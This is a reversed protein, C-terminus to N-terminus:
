LEEDFIVTITQIVEDGNFEAWENIHSPFFKGYRLSGEIYRIILIPTQYYGSGDPIRNSSSTGLGYEALVRTPEYPDKRLQAIAEDNDEHKVWGQGWDDRNFRLLSEYVFQAFDNDEQIRKHVQPSFVLKLMEGRHSRTFRTKPMALEKGTHRPTCWPVSRQNKSESYHM